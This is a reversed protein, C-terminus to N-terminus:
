SRFPLAILHECERCRYPALGFARAVGPLPTSSPRVEASGCVTCRLAPRLMFIGHLLTRTSLQRRDRPPRVRRPAPTVLVRVFAMLRHAPSPRHTM